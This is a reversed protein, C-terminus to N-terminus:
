KLLVAFDMWILTKIIVWGNPTDSRHEHISLKAVALM